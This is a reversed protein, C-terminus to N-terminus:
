ENEYYKDFITQAVHNAVLPVAWYIARWDDHNIKVREKDNRYLYRNGLHYNSNKVVNTPLKYKM